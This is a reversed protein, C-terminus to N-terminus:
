SPTVSLRQVVNDGEVLWVSNVGSILMPQIEVESSAPITVTVKAALLQNSNLVIAHGNITLEDEAKNLMFDLSELFDLGLIADSTIQTAVLFDHIFTKGAVSLYVEASRIVKIPIVNNVVLGHM